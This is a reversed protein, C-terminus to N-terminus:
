LHPGTSISASSCVLRNIGTSRHAGTVNLTAPVPGGANALFPGAGPHKPRSMAEASANRWRKCQKPRMV